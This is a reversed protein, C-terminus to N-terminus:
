CSWQRRSLMAILGNESAVKRREDMRVIEANEHTRKPRAATRSFECEDEASAAWDGPADAGCAACRSGTLVVTGAKFGASM